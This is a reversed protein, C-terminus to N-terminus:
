YVTRRINLNEVNSYDNRKLKKPKWVVQLKWLGAYREERAPIYKDLRFTERGTCNILMLRLLSTSTTAEKWCM